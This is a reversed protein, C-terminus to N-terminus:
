QYRGYKKVDFWFEKLTLGLTYQSFRETIQNRNSNGKIGYEYGGYISIRGSINKGFGVTMAYSDLPKGQVSFYNREASLGAQMFWNEYWYNNIKRQSVYEFGVSLRGSPIAYSNPYNVKQKKWDSYVADASITVQDNLVLAYGLGLTLPLQFDKKTVTTKKISVDSSFYETELRQKIPAANTLTLGLRHTVATSVKKAYQLGALFQYANMVNYQQRVITTTLESGYYQTNINSSGFYYSTTLGVSLNKHLKRAYSLYLQNLGGSGDVQKVLATANAAAPSTEYLLYNITSYPKLGISFAWKKNPKFSLSIRRVSFDKTTATFTDSGAYQFRANKGRNAIDFMMMRESLDVLSAPNSTNTYYQSSLALSTSGMGYWRGFDKTEIDGIGLISYPSTTNQANSSSDIMFIFHYLLALKLMNKM